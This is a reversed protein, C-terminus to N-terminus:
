HLYHDVRSVFDSIDFPKSIFDEAECKRKVDNVYAHASMMLVPIDNTRANSKLEDCVTLGNGDTLMVDLIVMDPHASLMERKFAKVTPYGHVEYNEETLLYSILDRIDDNDELIYVSKKTAEM